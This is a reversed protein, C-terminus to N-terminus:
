QSALWDSFRSMAARLQDPSRQFCIRFFGEGVEGFASGPAFGVKAEDIIRIATDISQTEGEIGFMLYFAGKPWAFRLNGFNQLASCVIERGEAARAIQERAFDEGENLAAVGAPQMFSPVGSTNYQILNEVTQGLEAPVQLWGMRWGTMAWNKSFTQAFVIKDGPERLTQFSPALGGDFFFRGYIEDAIIWLGRARAFDLIARLEDETATWGTPNSPSNIFIARTRETCADFLQTLDLMWGEAGFDMPVFRPVAGRSLTAGAFNPWAPTPVIVEEGHGVVLQMAIQIAQMGGCTVFFEDPSFPRQYLRSFYNALAERLAPIGRQYTYFTQGDALAASAAECIFRPTPVDGEGAWLPILGEQEWGYKAVKLIGSEPLSQASRSLQANLDSM